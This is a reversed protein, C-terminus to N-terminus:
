RKASTRLDFQTPGWSPYEVVGLSIKRDKPAIKKTPVKSSALRGSHLHGPSGPRPRIEKIEMATERLSPAATSQTPDGRHGRTSLSCMKKWFGLFQEYSIM